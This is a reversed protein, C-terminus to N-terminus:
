AAVYLPAKRELHDIARDFLGMVDDHRTRRHDNFMMLGRRPSVFAVWRSIDRGLSMQKALHKILRHETGNPNDFNPSGCALSLAAVLCHGDGEQFRNQVWRSRDSIRSRANMLIALDGIPAQYPIDFPM